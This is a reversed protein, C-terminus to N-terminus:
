VLHQTSYIQQKPIPMRPNKLPHVQIITIPKANKIISFAIHIYTGTAAIETTPFNQARILKTWM